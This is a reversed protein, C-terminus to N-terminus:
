TVLVSLNVMTDLAGRGIGLVRVLLQRRMRRERKIRLASAPPFRLGRMRRTLASVPVPLMESVAMPVGAVGRGWRNRCPGRRM